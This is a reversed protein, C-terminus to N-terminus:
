INNVLRFICKSLVFTSKPLTRIPTNLVCKHKISFWGAVKGKMTMTNVYWDSQEVM